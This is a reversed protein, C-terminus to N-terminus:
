KFYKEKIKERIQILAIEICKNYQGEILQGEESNISIYKDCGYNDCDCVMMGYWICDNM